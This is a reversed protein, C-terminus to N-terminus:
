YTTSDRGAYTAREEAVALHKEEVLRGAYLDEIPFTMEYDGWVLNGWEIRYSGFTDRDLYRRTEPNRSTSLFPELDVVQEHGDSFVIRLEYGGISEVRTIDMEQGTKLMM